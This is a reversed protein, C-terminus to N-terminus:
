FFSNKITSNVEFCLKTLLLKLETHKSLIVCQRSQRLWGEQVFDNISIFYDQCVFCSCRQHLYLLWEIRDIFLAPLWFALQTSRQFVMLIWMVPSSANSLPANFGGYCGCRSPALLIYIYLGWGELLLYMTELCLFLM